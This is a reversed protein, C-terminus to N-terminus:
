LLMAKYGEMERTIPYKGCNWIIGGGKLHMVAVSFNRM